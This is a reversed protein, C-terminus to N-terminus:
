LIGIRSICAVQVFREINTRLLVVCSRSKSFFGTWVKPGRRVKWFKLLFSRFVLILM